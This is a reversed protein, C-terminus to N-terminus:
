IKHLSSLGDVIANVHVEWTYKKLACSRANSGLRLRWDERDVLFRIAQAHEGASGPRCLVATANEDGLPSGSPLKDVQLGGRLVDGIQALESAVIAKGMAMYEFLKTPSGFFQSGDANPVHPSSLIDSAALHLPAQAQPVIGTLTVLGDKICSDLISRVEQMKAGDGVLMFHLKHDAVWKPYDDRLNVIAKALVEVGHWQGFTGVFTVVTAAHDIRYKSRLGDVDSQSFRSPNFVAPDVCNPYTVIRRSDIGREILEDKLAASVTVVLHAHKLMVTEAMQALRHFRLSRGWNKAVWVESGNYEVVLPRRYRRSLLVGLFNAISLRQYIACKGAVVGSERLVKYFVDQFRYNNLEYPLGFSMPAPVNLMEVDKDLMVPPECAAFTVRHGRRSLENVVGAIHGVSGGAKVGFWLNTKLYVIDTAASVRTDVDVRSRSSLWFLWIASKIASIISVISAFALRFFEDLLQVRRVSEVQGDPHVVLIMPCRTCAALLKLIPSLAASHQDEFPIVIREARIRLIKKVFELLGETRLQAISVTSAQISDTSRRVAHEYEASLPYTSFIISETM